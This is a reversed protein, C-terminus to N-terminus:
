DEVPQAPSLLRHRLERRRERHRQRGHRLLKADQPARAEHLFPPLPTLADIAEVGLREPFDAVPHPHVVPEPGLLEGAQARIEVFMVWPLVSDTPLMLM